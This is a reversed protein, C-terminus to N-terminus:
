QIIPIRGRLLEVGFTDRFRHAHGGFVSALKFLRELHRGNQALSKVCAARVRDHERKLCDYARAINQHM